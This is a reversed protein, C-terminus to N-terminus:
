SSAAFGVRRGAKEAGLEVYTLKNAPIGITRGSKDNIWIIQGAAGEAFVEEVRSRIAEADSDDLEVRIGRDSSQVGFVVEM